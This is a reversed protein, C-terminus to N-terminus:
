RNQGLTPVMMALVLGGRDELRRFAAVSATARTPFPNRETRPTTRVSRLTSISTPQGASAADAVSWIDAPVDVKVVREIPPKVRWRESVQIEDFLHGGLLTLATGASGCLFGVTTLVYAVLGPKWHVPHAAHLEILHSISGYSVALAGLGLGRLGFDGRRMRHWKAM